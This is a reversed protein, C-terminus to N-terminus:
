KYNCFSCISKCFPVHLYLNRAAGDHGRDVASLWEDRLESPRYHRERGRGLQQVLSSAEAYGQSAVVRAYIDREGQLRRGLATMRPIYWPQCPAENRAGSRRGRRASSAAGPPSLRM